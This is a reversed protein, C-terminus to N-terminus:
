YGDAAPRPTRKPLFMLFVLMVATLALLPGLLLPVWVPASAPWLEGVALRSSLETGNAVSEATVRPDPAMQAHAVAWGIVSMAVSGVAVAALTLLEVASLFFGAVLGLALGAVGLGLALRGTGDFLTALWGEFDDPYWSHRTVSGPMSHWGLPWVLGVVLGGIAFLALILGAQILGRRWPVVSSDTTVAPDDAPATLQESM